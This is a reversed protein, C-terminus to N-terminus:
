APHGQADFQTFPAFEPSAGNYGNPSFVSALHIGSTGVYAASAKIPGFDHDVGLTYTGIYGNKYGRWFTGASLLQVQGTQAKLDSQFRQLDILTNAPVASSDGNPFLPQGNMAYAEPLQMTVATNSFPVPTDKRATIVPQFVLPIGGTM